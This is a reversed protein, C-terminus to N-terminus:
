LTAFGWHVLRQFWHAFPNPSVLMASLWLLLKGRKIQMNLDNLKSGGFFGARTM